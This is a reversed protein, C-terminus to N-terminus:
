NIFSIEIRSKSSEKLFVSCSIFCVSLVIAGYHLAKMLTNTKRNVVVELCGTEM